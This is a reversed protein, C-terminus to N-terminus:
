DEVASEDMTGELQKDGVRINVRAMRLSEVWREWEGEESEEASQKLRERIERRRLKFVVSIGKEVAEQKLAEDGLEDLLEHLLRAHRPDANILDVSSELSPATDTTNPAPSHPTQPRSGPRTTTPSTPSTPSPPLPPLNTVISDLAPVMRPSPPDDEDERVQHHDGNVPQADGESQLPQGNQPEGAENVAVFSARFTHGARLVRAEENALAKSSLSLLSSSRSLSSSKILETGEDADQGDDSAYGGSTPDAAATTAGDSDTPANGSNTASNSDVKTLEETSPAQQADPASLDAGPHTSTTPTPPADPLRTDPFETEFRKIINTLTQDLFM